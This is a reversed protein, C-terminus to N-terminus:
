CIKIITRLVRDASELGGEIWANHKQSTIEGAIHYKQNSIHKYTKYHTKWYTAGEKWYCRKIWLPEPIYLKPFLIKLNNLLARILDEDNDFSNWYDAFQKDTYSIQILGSAPNMPIIYRIPLNTTIRSLDKFWVGNGNDNDNMPFKMFIRHLPAMEISIALFEALRNDHKMLGNFSLLAQKTVCFVVKDFKESKNGQSSKWYIKNTKVDYDYVQSSTLIRNHKYSSIKDKLVEVIQDLGDKLYFYQIDDNFDTKFIELSTYANQLEFESNYGFADIIRETNMKGMVENMYERLTISKLYDNSRLKSLAVVKKFLMIGVYKDYDYKNSNIMFSRKTKIPQIKDHLNLDRLLRYLRKHNTNFRGAGAEFVEGDKHITHVRGGLRSSSEFICVTHGLLTLKYGLYLGSIGGGIIGVKM